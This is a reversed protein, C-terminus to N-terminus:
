KGRDHKFIVIDMCMVLQDINKNFNRINLTIITLNFKINLKNYDNINYYDISNTNNM